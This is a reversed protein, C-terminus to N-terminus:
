ATAMRNRPLPLEDIHDVIWEFLDPCPEGFFREAATSGDERHLGFNHVVTLVKLRRLPIARQAHNMRSLVSNRGEVASSARQFKTVMWQAWNQWRRVEQPHLGTTLPHALLREHAREHTVRYAQRLPSSSTREAQTRWYVEALVIECVWTALESPLGYPSLSEATWTWWLDVVTAIEPVQKEVKGLRNKSDKMAYEVSLARLRALIASVQESVEPSSQRALTECSFPHVAKSVQQLAEYYRTQGQELRQQEDTLAAVHQEQERIKAFCAAKEQLRDLTERATALRRRGRAVQTAFRGGLCKVLEHCVHFLDPIHPCHLGDLALKTLAKAKDSVM